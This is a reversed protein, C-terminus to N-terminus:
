KKMFFDRLVQLKDTGIYDAKSELLINWFNQQDRSIVDTAWFRVKRGQKHATNILKNLKQSEDKPIAGKGQWKFYDHWNASILPILSPPEAGNLDDPRGDYFAYRFDESKMLELPRNGSIIVTVANQHIKGNKYFTLMSAYHKLVAELVRYTFDGDSKIDILLTFPVDKGYVFGGNEKVINELPQLYMNVLTNSKVIDEKDHAVYLKGDILHIDAEVSVFGYSLADFLPRTHRYDNHAHAKLLPPPLKVAPQRACGLLFVFFLLYIKYM